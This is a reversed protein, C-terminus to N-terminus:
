RLPPGSVTARAPGPARDAFGHQRGIDFEGSEHSFFVGRFPARLRAGPRQRIPGLEVGEAHFFAGGGIECRLFNVLDPLRLHFLDFGLHQLHDILQAVFIEFAETRRERGIGLDVHMGALLNEVEVLLVDVLHIQLQRRHEATQRFCLQQHHRDLLEALFLGGRM